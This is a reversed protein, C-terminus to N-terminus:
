SFSVAPGTYRVCKCATLYSFPAATREGDIRGPTVRYSGSLNAASPFGNLVGFFVRRVDAIKFSGGTAEVLSRALLMTDCERLFHGLFDLRVGEDPASAAGAQTPSMQKCLARRARQAKSEATVVGATDTIPTWGMGRIGPLQGVPMALGNGQSAVLRSPLAVSSMLYQPRWGQQEAGQSFLVALFPERLSLFHVSKAGANRFRLVASQIQSTEGGLSGTGDSCDSQTMSLTLGLQRAAPVLAKEYAAINGPCAEVLVGITDGRKVFGAKLSIALLAPAYRDVAFSTPGLYSPSRRESDRDVGYLAINLHLVGAKATCAEFIPNFNDDSIVAEVKVDETFHTCARQYETSGSTAAGDLAYYDPQITRGNLGGHQNLYRVMDKFGKFTDVAEGSFGFAAAAKNFDTMMIGLRVPTKLASPVAPGSSLATPV